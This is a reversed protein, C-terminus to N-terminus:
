ILKDLKKTIMKVNRKKGEEILYGYTDLTTSINRHGLRDRVEYINAGWYFLLAVHCHRLMHASFGDTPLKLKKMLRKLEVNISIRSPPLGGANPIGFVYDTHNAKLEKLINLLKDNVAVSRASSDTKTNGLKHLNFIYSHNINIIQKKFDIDSWRLGAAEGDRMGTLLITLIIYDCINGDRSSKARKENTKRRNISLQVLNKIQSVSLMKVKDLRTHTNSGTISTNTMFDLKILGDQLAIKVAAHYKSNLNKISSEAYNTGLYNLFKQWDDRKISKIKTGHFYDKLIKHATNYTQRTEYRVKPKKYLKYYDWYYDAFAPDEKINIGKNLDTLANAEWISAQKKTKFHGKSKSHRKKQSDRWFIRAYWYNGRKYVAM